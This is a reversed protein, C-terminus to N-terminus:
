REILQRALIARETCDACRITVILDEIRFRVAIVGVEQAGGAVRLASDIRRTRELPTDIVKPSLKAFSDRIAALVIARTLLPARARPSALFDTQARTATNMIM